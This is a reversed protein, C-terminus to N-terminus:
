EYRVGTQTAAQALKVIARLTFRCAREYEAGDEFKYCPEHGVSVQMCGLSHAQAAVGSRHPVTGDGNEDPGVLAFTRMGEVWSSKANPGARPNAPQVVQMRVQRQDNTSDHNALTGEMPQGPTPITRANRLHWSINGFARSESSSGFFSYTKPHYKQRLGEHFPQVKTTVIDSFAQWDADMKAKRKGADKEENLPNILHDECLGWWKDRVTYIEKYPDGAKPLQHEVAGERVRLWGNGYEATPLLQLPGPSSAMVATVEGGDNGLVSSSVAGAANYWGTNDETGAKIRRYVAAAGIAPMVGHVIGLMDKGRGMVESCHRAVLGGMSHTVVIVKDCRIKDAKYRARIEDIRDALRQASKANDDLWNYGCAWVPYRYRYSFGVEERTLAAEGKLANLKRQILEIREGENCSAFDNLWGELRPLFTGYSMFGVEGWGRRRMEEEALGLAEGSPLKGMRDVQMAAPQLWRKRFAAGRSPGAWDTATGAGDMRWRVPNGDAQRATSVLNSGMVGPVFIVPIVRDPVMLCHGETDNPATMRSRWVPNGRRDNEPPIIRGKPVPTETAM